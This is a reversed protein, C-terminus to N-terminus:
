VLALQGEVLLAVTNRFSRNSEKADNRPSTQRNGIWACVVVERLTGIPFLWDSERPPHVMRFFVLTGETSISLASQM